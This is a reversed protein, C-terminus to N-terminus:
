ADDIDFQMGVARVVHVLDDVSLSPAPEVAARQGGAATGYHGSLSSRAVAEKSTHSGVGPGALLSAPVPDLMRRQRGAPLEETVLHLDAGELSDRRFDGRPEREGRGSHLCPLTSPELYDVVETVCFRSEISM